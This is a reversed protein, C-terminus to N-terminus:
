RTILPIYVRAGVTLTASATNGSGSASSVPSTTNTYVGIDDATVNLNVICDEGGLITASSFTISTSGPSPAFVPGGCEPSLNYTLPAAVRMGVPFNNSFGVEFLTAAANPNSLTYQVTATGGPLIQDPLFAQTIIPVEVGGRLVVSFSGGNSSVDSSASFRGAETPTFNYFFQCTGGPQVGGACNQSASFPPYVGGGAFNSLTSMGTNKITVVQTTGSNGIPVPGFDLVLPSARLGAGVGEGRLEITFSGASDTVDSTTTFVGAETPNFTYYFHCTEGPALEPACDQGAWFPSYVGGGAFDIIPYFMSQNTLDVILTESDLGVGVPGFDISRPTVKQGGTLFITRGRGQLAISFTGANTSSNSTTSFTGSATPAFWFFYQCTQGPLVGGACNQSASFPPNVGGGAFNTLVSMGTNHINVIQQASTTGSLVSGFDLSLPTVHLGPGVGEGILEISFPGANTGSSSTTSFIGEETPSFTFFYQCSGGPPVGAACNQSASFPPYVGGGAFGALTDNGTNYITVTWQSSSDGVGVLGFDLKLPTVWLSPAASGHIVNLKNALGPNANWVIAFAFAIAILVPFWTRLKM